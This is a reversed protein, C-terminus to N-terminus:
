RRMFQVRRQLEELLPGMMLRTASDAKEYSSSVGEKALKEWLDPQIKELESTDRGERRMQQRASGILKRREEESMANFAKLVVAYFPEVTKQAFWQQEDKSLDMYFLAIDESHEARLENRQDSTLLSAATAVKELHQKRTATDVKAGDKRWPSEQILALVEDPDSVYDETMRMVFAVGGWVLAIVIFAPIWIALRM